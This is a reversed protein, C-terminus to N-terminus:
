ISDMPTIKIYIDHFISLAALTEEHVGWALETGLLDRKLEITSVMAEIMTHGLTPSDKSDEIRIEGNAAYYMNSIGWAQEIYIGVEDAILEFYTDKRSEPLVPTAFGIKKAKNWAKNYIDAQYTLDAQIEVEQGLISEFAEHIVMNADCYNHTSCCGIYEKMANLRDIVGCDNDSIQKRILLVFQEALKDTIWEMASSVAVPDDGSPHKAWGNELCVVRPDPSGPCYRCSIADCLFQDCDGKYKIIELCTRAAHVEDTTRASIGCDRFMKVLDDKKSSAELISQISKDNVLNEMLKQKSLPVVSSYDGFDVLPCNDYHPCIISNLIGYDTTDDDVIGTCNIGGCHGQKVIHELISKDDHLNGMIKRGPYLVAVSEIPEKKKFIAAVIYLLRGIPYVIWRNMRSAIMDIDAIRHVMPRNRKPQRVKRDDMEEAIWAILLSLLCIGIGWGIMFLLIKVYGVWKEL